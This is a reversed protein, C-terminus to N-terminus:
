HWQGRAVLLDRLLDPRDTMIGDVGIDLLAAMEDPDDVTWVHVGIARAHAAAVFREDVVVTEGVRLPVQAAAAPGPPAPIEVSALGILAAVEVPGLATCVRGGTRQRLLGIREDSFAALCVRDWARTRELVELLPRVAADHKADINIRLGPFDGLLEELLPIRDGGALRAARVERWPLEAIAGTRDTVRDLHDDHFAVLVGDATAHVDTEVYRYGLAVAREFATLSNEAVDPEHHAGRHAFPIPGPHDLFAFPAPV